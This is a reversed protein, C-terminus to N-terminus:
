IAGFGVRRENPEGIEVYALKDAPVIIKRGKEDTLVFLGTADAVAAKVLAALEEPSLTSEIALERAAGKVGVKVEV